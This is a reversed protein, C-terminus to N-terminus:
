HSCERFWDGPADGSIDVAREITSRHGIRPRPRRSRHASVSRQDPASQGPRLQGAGALDGTLHAEAGAAFAATEEPRVMAGSHRDGASADTIGNLFDGAVGYIREGVRRWRKRCIQEAITHRLM